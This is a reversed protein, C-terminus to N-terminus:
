FGMDEKELLTKDPPIEFPVSLLPSISKNRVRKDFVGVRGQSIEKLTKTNHKLYLHGVSNCICYVM